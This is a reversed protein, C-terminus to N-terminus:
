IKIDMIWDTLMGTGIAIEDDYTLLLCIVLKTIKNIFLPNRCDSGMKSIPM